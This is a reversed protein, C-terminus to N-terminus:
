NFHKRFFFFLILVIFLTIIFSTIKKEHKSAFIKEILYNSLKMLPNEVLFYFIIGFIFSTFLENFLIVLGIKHILKEQILYNVFYFGEKHFLYIGFSYKGFKKFISLNIIENFCSSGDLLLIFIYIAWYIGYSIYCYYIKNIYFENGSRLGFVFMIPSVYALLFRLKKLVKFELNCTQIEYYMIGVLSGTLFIQFILELNEGRPHFIYSCKLGNINYIELTLM